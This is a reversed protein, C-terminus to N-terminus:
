SRVARFAMAALWGAFIAVALSLLGYFAPHTHALNYLWRGVGVKRVDITTEHYSIVDGEKTLFIRAVYEGELLNSPLTVATSFLMNEKLIVAGPLTQYLGQDQRIRIIAKSFENPEDVEMPAGVSRIMREVSISHRLDSVANVVQNFPATTAVAYFNPALDIEVADVNVWIGFKKEKRWATVPQRPSAITVIVDVPVNSEIAKSPKIAGFVLIESGDFFATIGVENKSLGLVIEQSLATRSILLLIIVFCIYVTRM